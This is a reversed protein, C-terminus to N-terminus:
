GRGELRDMAVSGGVLALVIGCLAWWHSEPIRFALWQDPFLYAASHYGVLLLSVGIALRTPESLRHRWARLRESTRAAHDPRTLAAIDAAQQERDLDQRRGWLVWGAAGCILAGVLGGLVVQWLPEGSIAPLQLM